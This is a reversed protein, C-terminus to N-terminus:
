TSVKELEKSRFYRVFGGILRSDETIAFARLHPSAANAWERPFLTRLDSACRGASEHVSDSWAKQAESCSQNEIDPLYQEYCMEVLNILKRRLTLVIHDIIEDEGM